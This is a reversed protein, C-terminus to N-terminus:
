KKKAAELVKTWTALWNEYGTTSNQILNDSSWFLDIMTHLNEFRKINDPHTETGAVLNSNKKTEAVSKLVGVAVTSITPRKVKSVDNVTNDLYSQSKVPKNPNKNFENRWLITSERPDYGANVLLSLGVRDAQSEEEVSYEALKRFLVSTPLDGFLVNTTKTDLKIKKKPNTPDKPMPLNPAVVKDFVNKVKKNKEDRMAAKNEDKIRKAGHEYIAHAIEHGLVAALQADNEIAVLLGWNVFSLGNPLVCANVENDDILIFMFKIKSDETKLYDPVLKMGITHVYDQLIESQTVVIGEVIQKGLLQKRKVKDIWKPYIAEHLADIDKKASEDYETEFDPGVEFTSAYINGDPNYYGELKAMDGILLENVTNFTKKYGNIGKIKTGSKLKIRKGDIVVFDTGIYDIHGNTIKFKGLNEKNIVIRKASNIGQKRFYEGEMIIGLGSHLDNIRATKKAIEIQCNEPILISETSIKRDTIFDVIAERTAYDISRIFANKKFDIGIDTVQSFVSKSNFLTVLLSLFITKLQM